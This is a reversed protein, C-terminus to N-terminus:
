LRWAHNKRVQESGRQTLVSDCSRQWLKWLIPRPGESRVGAVKRNFGEASM